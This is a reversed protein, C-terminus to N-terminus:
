SVYEVILTAIFLGICVGAIFATLFFNMEAHYYKDYRDMLAKNFVADNLDDKIRM